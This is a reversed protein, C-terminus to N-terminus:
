GGAPVGHQPGWGLWGGVREGLGDRQQGWEWVGEMGVEGARRGPVDRHGLSGVLGWGGGGPGLGKPLREM